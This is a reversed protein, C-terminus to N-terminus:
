KSRFDMTSKILGIYRKSLITYIETTKSGNYELLDQIYRLNLSENNM